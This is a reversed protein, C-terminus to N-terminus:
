VRTGGIVLVCLQLFHVYAERLPSRRADVLDTHNCATSCFAGGRTPGVHCQVAGVGSHLACCHHMLASLESVTAPCLQDEYTYLLGIIEGLISIATLNLTAGFIVPEVVNGMLLQVFGPIIVAVLKAATSLGDDLLIIPIPLFLAVFSGINPIFNLLFTLVGFVVAMRVETILFTVMVLAGTALSIESKVVIYYSMMADIEEAITLTHLADPQHMKLFTEMSMPKRTALMYLM